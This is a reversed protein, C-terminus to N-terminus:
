AYKINYNYLKVGKDDKEILDFGLEDWFNEAQVNKSTPSYEAVINKVGSKKAEAFLYDVLHKEVGRGLIRCSLLFNDVRWKEPLVEVMALGIVGYDGFRDSASITWAFGNKELFYNLQEESYRRTTLNFQNTKQTLQASRALSNEDVKTIETRVNLEKLFDDLSKLKTKLERREREEVYMQGRRIDEHTLGFTHFGAYSKLFNNLENHNQAKIVAVEPLAEIVLNQQFSDDDIFAFSDIGINLEKSLELMNSVKDGWNIRWAAFHKKRLIMDPHTEIANLAEDHNNRSNIALIIGKNFLDILYEQLSKNIIIKNIGDEGLIGQWLTNDLDVVVCKKTTGSAAVAYGLLKESLDVFSSPSLRLDGLEKYKTYWNKEHGTSSLWSNFDFSIIQNNGSYLNGIGSNFVVIKAKSRLILQDVLEILRSDTFTKEDIFLYIIDPSFNYLNSESNLIEQACQDYPSSYIDLLLNHFLGRVKTIEPLGNITFNSLFAVKIKRVYGPLNDESLVKLSNFINLYAAPGASSDFLIGYLQKKYDEFMM